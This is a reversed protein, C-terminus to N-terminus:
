QLGAYAGGDVHIHAGTLFRAHESCMFAAIAGFDAPDGITGTPIDAALRTVDDGYVTSIRDTLHLGPQLSNVTVGDSAVERALTTLFGTLGTRATTSLILNPIPQRVTVSTIALVRGWRQARMTPLAAHCMAIPSLLNQAIASLHDDPSTTSFTGPKPGGGNTVLVDVGGLAEAAREVLERGGDATSVDCLLGVPEGDLSELAAALRGGDRGCIVVRAGERALARATALGLGSTAAAVVARRGELHLDM